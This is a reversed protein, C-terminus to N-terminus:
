LERSILQATQELARTATCALADPTLLLVVYYGDKLARFLLTGGPTLLRLELPEGANHHAGRERLLVWQATLQAGVVKMDFDSLPPAGPPPPERVTFDVHEGEYDCFIAGRAGPTRAVLDSLLRRFPM